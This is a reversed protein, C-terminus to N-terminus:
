PRNQFKILSKSTVTSSRGFKTRQLAAHHGVVRRPRSCSAKPTAKLRFYWPRARNSGWDTIKTKISKQPCCIIFEWPRLFRHYALHLERKIMAKKAQVSKVSNKLLSLWLLEIKLMWAKELGPRIELYNWRRCTMTLTIKKSPINKM